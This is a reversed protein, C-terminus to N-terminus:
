LGAGPLAELLEQKLNWFSVSGLANGMVAYTLERGSPTTLFGVETKVGSM